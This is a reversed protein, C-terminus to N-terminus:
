FKRRLILRSFTTKLHYIEDDKILRTWCSLLFHLVGYLTFSLALTWFPHWSSNWFILRLAGALIVSILIVGGLEKWQFLSLVNTKLLRAGVILGIVNMIFVGLIKGVLAFMPGGLYAGGVLLSLGIILGIVKIKLALHTKSTARFLPEPNLAGVILFINFVMFFPISLLYKESFIFVVIEHAFFIMFSVFPVIVMFLKRTMSRWVEIAKQQNDQKMADVMEINAMEFMSTRAANVLPNEFCGVSYYTFQVLSFFSSIFFNEMNLINQLIRSFGLPLGFKLQSLLYQPAERYSLEASRKASHIIYMTAILRITMIVSLAVLAMYVSNFFFFAAIVLFSKFFETGVDVMLRANFRNLGVILIGEIQMSSVTALILYGLLPLYEVLGPNKILLSIEVKFIVLIAWLLGTALLNFIMANFSYLPFKKPNWRLFYYASDDIGLNLAVQSFWFFLMLQKYTGYTEISLKRGLYMPIAISFIVGFVRAATLLIMKNFSEKDKV